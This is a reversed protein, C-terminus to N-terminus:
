TREGPLTADPPLPKVPSPAISMSRVRTDIVDFYAPLNTPRYKAVGRQRDIVMRHLLAPHEKSNRVFRHRALPIIWRPAFNLSPDKIRRPLIEVVWWLGRLSRHLKALASPAAYGSTDHEPVFARGDFALRTDLEGIMWALAGKSLGSEAEIYGGGVDCHVGPFWTQRIDQEPRPIESWMNERFYARREDLSVAHRVAKVSPNDATYDFSPDRWLYRISSVTDWVGIFNVTIPRGFTQRFGNAEEDNRNRAYITWAFPVLEENGRALLGVRHLMGAVVRATYAGRSFGFIYIEDGDAYYRMLFRYADQVHYKLLIAFALDLRTLVWHRLHGYVGPPTMTGIGPQYYVLQDTARKDLLAILKIVNTNDRCYKNSTGDLCLVLKKSM